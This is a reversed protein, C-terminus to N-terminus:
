FSLHCFAVSQLLLSVPQEEEGPAKSSCSNFSKRFERQLHDLRHKEAHADQDVHGAQQRLASGAPLLLPLQPLQNAQPVPHHGDQGEGDSRHASPRSGLVCVLHQYGPPPDCIHKWQEEKRGSYHHEKFTATLLHEERILHIRKM